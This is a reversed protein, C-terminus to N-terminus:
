LADFTFVETLQCTAPGEDLRYVCAQVQNDRPRLFEGNPCDEEPGYTYHGLSRGASGPPNMMDDPLINGNISLVAGYGPALDIGVPESCTSGQGSRPFWGEVPDDSSDVTPVVAPTDEQTSAALIIAGVALALGAIVVLRQRGVSVPPRRRHEPAAPRNPDPSAAM